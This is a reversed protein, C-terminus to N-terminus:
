CRGRMVSRCKKKEGSMQINDDNMDCLVERGNHIGDSLLRRRLVKVVNDTVQVGPQHLCVVDQHVASEPTLDLGGTITGTMSTAAIGGAHQLGTGKARIAALVHVGTVVVENDTTPALAPADVHVASELM